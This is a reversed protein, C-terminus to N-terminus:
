GHTVELGDRSRASGRADGLEEDLAAPLIARRFRHLRRPAGDEVAEADHQGAGDLRGGADDLPDRLRFPARRQGGHDAGAPAGASRPGREGVAGGGVREVVVVGAEGHHPMRRRGHEGGREGGPLQDQGVPAAEDM